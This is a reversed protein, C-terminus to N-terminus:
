TLELALSESPHSMEDPIALSGPWRRVDLSDLSWDLLTEACVCAAYEVEWRERDTGAFPRRYDIETRLALDAGPGVNWRLRASAAGGRALIAMVAWDCNGFVRDFTKEDTGSPHASDGPHTHIWIRAFQEPQRGRDIQQDFYDAVAVDDFAVTVATCRQPIVAIDEVFLPDDARTIGFGGIETDGRDRLYLLKAWAWPTYRLVPRLRRGPSRHRRRTTMM